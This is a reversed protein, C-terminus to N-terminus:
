SKSTSLMEGCARAVASDPATSGPMTAWGGKEIFTGRQWSSVKELQVLNESANAHQRFKDVCIPVLSTVVASAARERAKQEATGATVWGGWTFGIVALVAAGGVAGWGAPKVEAPIQM